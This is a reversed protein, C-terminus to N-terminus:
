WRLPRQCRQARPLKWAGAGVSAEAVGVVFVSVFVAVAMLLGLVLWFVLVASVLLEGLAVAVQEAYTIGFVAQLAVVVWGLLVVEGPLVLM